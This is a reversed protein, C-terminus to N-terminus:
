KSGSMDISIETSGGTGHYFTNNQLKTGSMDISIETSGGTAHHFTLYEIM